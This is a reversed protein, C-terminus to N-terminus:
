AGSHFSDGPLYFDTSDTDTASRGTRDLGHAGGISTVLCRRKGLYIPQYCDATFDDATSHRVHISSQRQASNAGVTTKRNNRINMKVVLQRQLNQFEANVPQAQIGAIDTFSPLDLLDDPRRFFSQHRYPDAHIGAGQFFLEQLLVALRSGFRHNVRSKAM